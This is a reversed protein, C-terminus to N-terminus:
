ELVTFTYGRHNKDWYSIPSNLRTQWDLPFLVLPGNDYHTVTDVASHFGCGVAFWFLFQGWARRRKIGWVYGCCLLPVLILPAHFFNYSVVWAPDTCRLDRFTHATANSRNATGLKRAIYYGMTLVTLPLDPFVSGLLLARRDIPGIDLRQSAAATAILHSDTRM